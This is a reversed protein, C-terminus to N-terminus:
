LQTTAMRHRLTEGQILETVIFHRSDIEGIEYITIISPHNLASAARAEQQFRRVRDYDTTYHAPLVKLAIKRGLRSDEALYVEGMGGTGLASLILYPGFSRGALSETQEGLSDAMLEFAASEIFDGAQEDARILSEVKLRLPEDGACARELFAARGDPDRELASHLLSKIIQWREPTM